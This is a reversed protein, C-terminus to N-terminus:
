NNDTQTNGSTDSAEKKSEGVVEAMIPKNKLADYIHALAIATVPITIILGIGFALAGLINLLMIVLFFGFLDWKHGRTLDRSRKVARWFADGKWSVDKPEDMLIFTSVSTMVAVIVGPIVLLVFGLVVFFTVVIILIVYQFFKNGSLDAFINNFDVKQGRAIRLYASAMLFGSFVSVLFGFPSNELLYSAAYVIIMFALIFWVNEKTRMWGLSLAEKTTWNKM